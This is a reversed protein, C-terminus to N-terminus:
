EAIKSYIQEIAAQVDPVAQSGDISFLIGQKQYYEELPATNEIYVVLRKRVTEEKDDERQIIEGQCSECINSEPPPNTVVNYTKGCKICVRRSTIRKVLEEDKVAFYIVADIPSSNRLLGDLSEAQAITRPFGDLIYGNKCDSQVLRENILNIIIEDSVLGGSEMISKAKKGLETGDKVARRLIDGTSIQPVNYKESIYGAQTGKGTGPAGLFIVRM